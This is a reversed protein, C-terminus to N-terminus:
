PAARGMLRAALKVDDGLVGYTHRTPGGFAGVRMVGRSIGIQVSDLGDRALLAERLDLAAAVARRPDDEPRTPAGFVIYLYSGKDGIAIQLLLQTHYRRGAGAARDARIGPAPRHGM